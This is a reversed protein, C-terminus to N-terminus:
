FKRKYPKKARIKQATEFQIKQKVKDVNLPNERNYVHLIESIYKSKEGAMELLPLMLAQDYATKYYQGDDDKLDELDINKWLKTKFTRLHSARWRDQRFKNGNIVDAPYDSPEIGKVGNPYYVYSGYTMLCKSTSYIDDLHSLVNYSSLWDDGDLIINIDEEDCKNNILTKVINGLAYEKNANTTLLFREDNKIEKEIIKSTDDTSVDDILFCNFNQHTQGKISEICKKIWPGANYFPVIINFKHNTTDKRKPTEINWKNEIESWFIKTRQRLYKITTERNEFWPENKHQVNENIILDCGLMRAEIIFRPCTDGGPPLYIIGESTAMKKLLDKHELGWVLEYALNHDKAYDVAQRVGKIWSPSNLILWKDNKKSVNLDEIFDLTECSFVSSLVKINESDLFGFKNIYNQKQVESMFWTTLAKKYFVSILKARPTNECNCAGSESIHKEPSRYFCYKYDYELVSYSLNKIAYLICKENLNAFNGFIWFKDKNRKMTEVSISSSHAKIVPMLSGKIIAETTLEAGGVYNEVFMDAVFVIM